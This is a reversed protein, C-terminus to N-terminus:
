DVARTDLEIDDGIVVETVDDAGQEPRQEDPRTRLDEAYAFALDIVTSLELTFVARYDGAQFSEEEISLEPIDAAALNIEEKELDALSGAFQSLTPILMQIATTRAQQRDEDDDPDLRHDIPPELVMRILETDPDYSDTEVLDPQIEDRFRQRAEEVFAQRRLTRARQRSERRIDPFRHLEDIRELQEAAKVPENREIYREARQQYFELMSTNLQGDRRNRTLGSRGVEEFREPASQPDISDLWERYLNGFQENVLQRFQRQEATLEGERDLGEDEWVTELTTQAAEFDGRRMDVNAMMRRAEVLEPDLELAAGLRDDARDIDGEALARKADTLKDKPTDECGVTVLATSLVWIGVVVWVAAPPWYKTSM